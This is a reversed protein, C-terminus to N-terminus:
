VIVPLVGKYIQALVDAVHGVVEDKTQIARTLFDDQNWRGGGHERHVRVHAIVDPDEDSPLVNGDSWIDLGAEKEFREQIEAREANDVSKGDAHCIGAVLWRAKNLWAAVFFEGIEETWMLVSEDHPVYEVGDIQKEIQEGAAEFISKIVHERIVPMAKYVHLAMQLREPEKSDCIYNATLENTDM